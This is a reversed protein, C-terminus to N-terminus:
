YFRVLHPDQVADRWVRTALRRGEDTELWELKDIVAQTTSWDLFREAVEWLKTSAEDLKEEEGNDPRILGDYWKRIRILGDVDRSEAARREASGLPLNAWVDVEPHTSAVLLCYMGGATKWMWTDGGGPRAYAAEAAAGRPADLMWRLLNHDVTVTPNFGLGLVLHSFTYCATGWGQFSKAVVQPM